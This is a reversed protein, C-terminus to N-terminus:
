WSWGLGGSEGASRTSLRQKESHRGGGGAEVSSEPQTEAGTEEGGRGSPRKWIGTQCM